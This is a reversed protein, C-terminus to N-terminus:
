IHAEKQDKIIRTSRAEMTQVRANCRGYGVQIVDIRRSNKTLYHMEGVRGGVIDELSWDIRNHWVVVM